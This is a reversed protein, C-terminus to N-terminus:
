ARSSLPALTTAKDMPPMTLDLLRVVRDPQAQAPPLLGQKEARM